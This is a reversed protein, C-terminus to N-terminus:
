FSRGPAVDEYVTDRVAIVHMTLARALAVFGVTRALARAAFDGLALRAYPLSGDRLVMRVLEFLVTRGFGRRRYEPAVIVHLRAMRGQASEVSALAVLTGGALAGIRRVGDANGGGAAWEHPLVVNRLMDLVAPKPDVVLAAPVRRPQVLTLEDVVAMSAPDDGVLLRAGSMEIISGAPVERRTFGILADIEQLSSMSSLRRGICRCSVRTAVFLTRISRDDPEPRTVTTVRPEDLHEVPCGLTEAAARLAVTVSSAALSVDRNPVQQEDM